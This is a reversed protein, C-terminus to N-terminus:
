LADVPIACSCGYLWNGACDTLTSAHALRNDIGAALETYNVVNGKKDVELNKVKKYAGCTIYGASMAARVQLLWGPLLVSLDDVYAIYGDLALCLATNRANAAAFWNEKTLRHPGQWPNPKPPLWHFDNNFREVPKDRDLAYFDIIVIRIDTYDGRTERHLSRLFWQLKPDRRATSYAITLSM